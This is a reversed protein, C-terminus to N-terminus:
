ERLAKKRIKHLQGRLDKNHCGHLKKRESLQKSLEDLTDRHKLVKLLTLRWRNWGQWGIRPGTGEGSILPQSPTLSFPNDHKFTQDPYAKQNINNTITSLSPTSRVMTRWIPPPNLLPRHTHPRWSTFHSSLQEHCPPSCPLRYPKHFTLPTFRIRM